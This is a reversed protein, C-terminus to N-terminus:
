GSRGRASKCRRPVHRGFRCPSSRLNGAVASRDQHIKAQRHQDGVSNSGPRGLLGPAPLLSMQKQQRKLDNEYRPLDAQMEALLETLDPEKASLFVDLKKKLDISDLIIDGLHPDYFAYGYAADLYVLGRVKQPHRSGISSLEEGALSHGVLVPRDLDLRDIVVLVDDALRDASYNGDTPAPASSQGFGRRTIGYVHNHAALKPAFDDFEHATFPNGALLILPPGSGGWDLVELRVGNEVEIFQTKHSSTDKETAQEQACFGSASVLLLVCVSFIHVKSAAESRFSSL